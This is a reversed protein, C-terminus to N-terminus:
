PSSTQVNWMTLDSAPTLLWFSDWDDVLQGGEYGWNRVIRQGNERSSYAPTSGWDIGKDQACGTLIGLGALLTVSALKKM